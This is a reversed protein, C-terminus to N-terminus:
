LEFYEKLKRTIFLPAPLSVFNSYNAQLIGVRLSTTFQILKDVPEDEPASLVVFEVANPTPTSGLIPDHLKTEDEGKGPLEISRYTSIGRKKQSLPQGLSWYTPVEGMDVSYLRRCTTPTFYNDKHKEILLQPAQRRVRIVRLAPFDSFLSSDEGVQTDSMWPTLASKPASELYIVGKNQNAEKFINKCFLLYVEHRPLRSKNTGLTVKRNFRTTLYQIADRYNLWDSTVLIREQHCFRISPQGTNVDIRIAVAIEAPTPGSRTNVRINTIGYIFHPKSEEKPFYKTVSESIAPVIGHHGFVLDFFASRIRNLYDKLQKDRKTIRRDIPNLYQTPIGSQAFAIKAAPKNITDDRGQGEYFQDAQIICMDVQQNSIANNIAADWIDKRLQLRKATTLESGPLSKKPGHTNAPLLTSIVQISDGFLQDVIYKIIGQQSQDQCILLIRPANITPFHDRIIDRNINQMNGVKDAKQKINKLKDPDSLNEALLATMEFWEQGLLQITERENPQIDSNITENSLDESATQDENIHMCLTVLDLYNIKKRKLFQIENDIKHFSDMRHFGYPALNDFILNFADSRDRETVGSGLLNKGSYGGGDSSHSHSVSSRIGNINLTYIESEDIIEPLDFRDRLASFSDDPLWKREGNDQRRKAINFTYVRGKGEDFLFASANQNHSFKEKLASVWRRRGFNFNIIPYSVTPLTEISIKCYLSFLGKEQFQDIIPTILEATNNGLDSGIVRMVPPLEPFISVGELLRAIDNATISYGHPSFLPAATGNNSAGWPLLEFSQSEVSFVLKSDLASFLNDRLSDPMERKEMFPVLYHDVWTDICSSITEAIDSQDIAIIFPEIKSSPKFYKLDNTKLGSYARVLLLGDLHIELISKLSATPISQFDNSAAEAYSIIERMITMWQPTWKVLCTNRSLAEADGPYFLAHAVDKETSKNTNKTVKTVKTM